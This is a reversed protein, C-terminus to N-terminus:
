RTLSRTLSLHRVTTVVAIIGNGAINHSCRNTTTMTPQSMEVKANWIGISSDAIQAHQAGGSSVRVHYLM